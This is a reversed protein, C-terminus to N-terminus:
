YSIDDDSNNNKDDYNNNYRDCYSDDNYDNDDDDHPKFYYEEKEEEKEMERLKNEEDESTTIKIGNIKENFDTFKKFDEYGELNIEELSKKIYNHLTKLDNKKDNEEAESKKLIEDLLDKDIDIEKNHICYKHCLEKGDEKELFKKYLEDLFEIKKSYTGLLNEFYPSEYFKTNCKELKKNIKEIECNVENCSKELEKFNEYNNKNITKLDESISNIKRSLKNIFESFSYLKNIKEGKGENILSILFDKYEEKQSSLKDIRQEVSLKDLEKNFFLDIINGILLLENKYDDIIKKELLLINYCFKKVDENRKNELNKYNNYRNEKILNKFLYEKGLYKNFIDFEKNKCNLDKLLYNLNELVEKKKNKEFESYEQLDKLEFNKFKELYRKYLIEASKNLYKDYFDQYIASPFLYLNVDLLGSNESNLFNCKVFFENYLGYYLCYHSNIKSVIFDLYKGLFGNSLFNKYVGLNYRQKENLNYKKLLGEIDIKINKINLKKKFLFDSYRYVLEKIENDNLPRFSNNGQIEFIRKFFENSSRDGNIIKSEKKKIEELIEKLSLKKIVDEIYDTFDRISLFKDYDIKKGLFKDVESKYKEFDYIKKIDDYSKSIRNSNKKFYRNKNLFELMKNKEKEIEYLAKFTDRRIYEKIFEQKGSNFYKIDLNLEIGNKEFLKNKLINNMENNFTNINCFANTLFINKYLNQEYTDNYNKEIKSLIDQIEKKEIDYPFEIDDLTILKLKDLFLYGIELESDIMYSNTDFSFIYNYICLFNEACVKYGVPHIDKSFGNFRYYPGGISTSSFIDNLNNRKSITDMIKDKKLYFVRYLNTKENIKASTDIKGYTLIVYTLAWMFDITETFIVKDYKLNLFWINEKIDNIEEKFNNTLNRNQTKYKDKLLNDFYLKLYCSSDSFSNKTQWNLINKYMERESNTLLNKIYCILCDDDLDNKHFGKRLNHFFEKNKNILKGTEYCTETSYKNDDYMKITPLILRNEPNNSIRNVINNFYLYCFKNIFRYIGEDKFYKSM